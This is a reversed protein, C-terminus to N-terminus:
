EKWVCLWCLTSLDFQLKFCEPSKCLTNKIQCGSMSCSWASFGIEGDVSTVTKRQVSNQCAHLVIAGLRWRQRRLTDCFWHRMIAKVAVSYLSACVIILMRSRFIIHETRLLVVESEIFYFTSM